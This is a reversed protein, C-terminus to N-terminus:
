WEVDFANVLDELEVGEHELKERFKKLFGDNAKKNKGFFARSLALM